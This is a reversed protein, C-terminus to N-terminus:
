SRGVMCVNDCQLWHTISRDPGMAAAVSAAPNITCMNALTCIRVYAAPDCPHCSPRDTQQSHPLYPRCALSFLGLFTPPIHFPSSVQPSSTLLVIPPASAIPLAAQPLAPGVEREMDRLLGVLFMLKGSQQVATEEEHGQLASLLQAELQDDEVAGDMDEGMEGEMRREAVDGQWADDARDVGTRQLSSVNGNDDAADEGIGLATRYAVHDSLLRPHDCIKKLM